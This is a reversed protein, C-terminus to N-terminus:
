PDTPKIKRKLSRSRCITFHKKPYDITLRFKDLFDHVGLILDGDYEPIIDVVTDEIIYCLEQTYPHYIEITAICPYVTVNGNGTTRVESKGDYFDYGLAGVYVGPITCFAAATDIKAKFLGKTAQGNVPNIIRALLQPEPGFATPTFKCKRIPM